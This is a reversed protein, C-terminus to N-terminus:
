SKFTQKRYPSSYSVHLPFLHHYHDSWGWVDRKAQNGLYHFTHLTIASPSFRAIFPSLSPLLKKNLQLTLKCLALHLSRIPLLWPLSLLLLLLSPIVTTVYSLSLKKPKRSSESESKRPREGTEKEREDEGEKPTSTLLSTQTWVRRQYEGEDGEQGRGRRKEPSIFAWVYVAKVIEGLFGGSCFLKLKGGALGPSFTLSQPTSSFCLLSPAVRWGAVYLAQTNSEHHALSMGLPEDGAFPFWEWLIKEDELKVSTAIEECLCSFFFFFPLSFTFLFSPTYTQIFTIPQCSWNVSWQGIAHSSHLRILSQMRKTKFPM